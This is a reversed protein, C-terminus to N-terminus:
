PFGSRTEERGNPLEYECKTGPPWLGGQASYTSGEPLDPYLIFCRTDSAAGYVWVWSGAFLGLAVASAIVLRKM